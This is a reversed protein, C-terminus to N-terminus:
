RQSGANNGGSIREFTLEFKTALAAYSLESDFAGIVQRSLSDLDQLEFALVQSALAAEDGVNFVIACEIPKTLAVLSPINSVVPIAGCSLAEVLTNSGHERRSSHVLFDASM